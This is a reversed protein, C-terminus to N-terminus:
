EKVGNLEDRTWPKQRARTQERVKAVMAPTVPEGTNGWSRRVYTMIAALQGAERTAPVPMVGWSGGGPMYGGELGHLLVRAMRGGPGNAIPSNVLTPALGASGQGEPQHCSACTAAFLKKGQNFLDWEASTLERVSRRKVATVEHGAWEFLAECQRMLSAGRAGSTSAALWEVPERALKLPSPEDADLRLKSKFRDLLQDARADGKTALTATLAALESRRDPSANLALDALERLIAKSDANAPWAGDALLERLVALEHGNMSTKLAARVLRDGPAARYAAAALPVRDEPPLAGLSLSAQVRVGADADTLAARVVGRLMDPEYIEEAMRLAHVRVVPEVDEPIWQLEPVDCLGLAHLTWMACLRAELSHGDPTWTVWALETGVDKARREILLRQATDRYWGEDSELLSVLQLNSMEGPMVRQAPSSVASSEFVASSDSAALSTAAAENRVVRWIRGCNLPAEMGRQRTIEKLHPTLFMRHQILGRYMDVLYLNGDPGVLSNVPRFREDTSRVFEANKYVNKADLTDGRPSIVLRKVLQGAPECIFANGNFEEGFAPSRFITPGCAATVSALTGDARLTGERYGRNVTPTPIAPWTTGDHGISEGLGAISGSSDPRGAYQKPFLDVLLPNSNPTYYLRGIDDRTIGWQGHTPTKQTKVTEGDFFVRASHQSFEWWGDIGMIPGNGAHEPSERGGFGTLLVRREDAKGDGDTDRCFLLNPPEIVLAGGYCPAVGRPLVLNDLFVTSRDMVGDHDTDDLIVVRNTPALEGTGETDPMYTRMEVVWLRGREDFAASVPAQILPEAAVLEIHFGPQVQFHMKSESAALVPVHVPAPAARSVVRVGPRAALGVGAAVVGAGALGMWAGGRGM